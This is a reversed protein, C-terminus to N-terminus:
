RSKAHPPSRPSAPPIDLAVGERLASKSVPSADSIALILNKGAECNLLCQHPKSHSSPCAQPHLTSHQLQFGTTIRTPHWPCSAPHADSSCFPAPEPYPSATATNHGLTLRAGWVAIDRSTFAPSKPPGPSWAAGSGSIDQTGGANSHKASGVLESIAGSAGPPSHHGQKGRGDRCTLGITQNGQLHQHQDKGERQLAHLTEPHVGPTQAPPSPARGGRGQGRRGVM